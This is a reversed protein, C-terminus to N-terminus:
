HSRTPHDKQQDLGLPQILDSPPAQSQGLGWPCHSPNGGLEREQPIVSARLTGPQRKLGKLNVTGMLIDSTRQFSEIKHGIASSCM